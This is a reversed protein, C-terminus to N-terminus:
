ALRDLDSALVEHALPRGSFHREFDEVVTQLLRHHIDFTKGAIHPTLIVNDLARFPSDPPLPEDDFVDLVATIAGARLVELLAQEDVLWARASNVLLAGPKMRGLQARDIMHRTAPLIPAHLTVIDSTAMLEDLELSTISLESAAQETLYPDYVVVDRTFPLVLPIVRRGVQSAAVIGVRKGYLSRGWQAEGDDRWPGGAHLRADYAPLRRLGALIAALTYEAVAEAITAAAHTVRVGRAWVERDLLRKVTGAAHGIIQLNPAADLVEADVPPSGWCTILGAVSGDLQAVLEHTSWPQDGDTGVVRDALRQLGREAEPNSLSRRLPAHIAVVISREAM